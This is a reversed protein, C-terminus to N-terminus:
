ELDASNDMNLSHRLPRVEGRERGFGGGAIVCVALLLSLASFVHWMAHAQIAAGPNCLWGGPRDGVQFVVAMGFLAVAGIGKLTVRRSKRRLVAVTVAGILLTAAVFTLNTLALPKVGFVVWNRATAAGAGFLITGIVVVSIRRDFLRGVVGHFSGVALASTAFYLGYMAAVDVHRLTRSASAHYLFSGIGVCILSAGALGRVRNSGIAVLYAGVAVFALNSWTNQPERVLRGLAKSSHAATDGPLAVPDLAEGQRPPQEPEPWGSGSGICVLTVALIASVVATLFLARGMDIRDTAPRHTNMHSEDLSKWIKSTFSPTLLGIM